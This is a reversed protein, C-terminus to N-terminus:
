EEGYLQEFSEYHDATYFILGDDSFILREANRHGGEYNVDAEYYDRGPAEPLLGEYNGFYNGGIVMGDAVEWLNGKSPEWGLDEAEDKTLYNPPLEEYLYLYEAVEDEQYYWEGEVVGATPEVLLTSCATLISLLFLILLSSGKKFRKM